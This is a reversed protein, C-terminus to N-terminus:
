LKALFVFIVFDVKSSSAFSVGLGITESVLSLFVHM